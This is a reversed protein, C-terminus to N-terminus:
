LNKFVGSGGSGGSRQINWNESSRKAEYFVRRCHRQQFRLPLIKTRWLRIQSMKHDAQPPNIVSADAKPPDPKPKGEPNRIVYFSAIFLPEDEIKEREETEGSGQKV